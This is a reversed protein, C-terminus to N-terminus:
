NELHMHLGSKKKLFYMKDTKEKPVIMRFLSALYKVYQM